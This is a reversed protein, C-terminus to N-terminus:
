SLGTIENEPFNTKTHSVSRHFLEFSLLFCFIHYLLLKTFPTSLSFIFHLKLDCCTCFYFCYSIILLLFLVSIHTIFFFDVMLHSIYEYGKQIFYLFTNSIPTFLFLVLYRCYVSIHHLFIITFFFTHCKKRLVFLLTYSRNITMLFIFAQSFNRICKTNLALKYFVCLM